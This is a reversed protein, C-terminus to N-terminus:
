RRGLELLRYGVILFWATTFASTLIAAAAFPGVVLPAVVTVIGLIGTIVGLYAAGRIARGKRAVLGIM